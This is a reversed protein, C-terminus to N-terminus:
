EVAKKGLAAKLALMKADSKDKNLLLAEVFKKSAVGPKPSAVISRPIVIEGPSLMAPVTDNAEDDMKDYHGMAASVEGGEAMCEGGEALKNKKAMKMMTAYAVREGEEAGYQEKFGKMNKKAAAHAAIQKAKSVKGGQAYRQILGGQAAKKPVPSKLEAVTKAVGGLQGRARAASEYASIEQSLKLRDAEQKAKQDAEAADFERKRQSEQTEVGLREQGLGATASTGFLQGEATRMNGLVNGLAAEAAQQEQARLISAQGASQQSIDAQQRLLLRQALAPNIGRGAAALRGAADRANQEMSQRLQLEAVSPGGRGEARARLVDALSQQQRGAAQSAAQAQRLYDYYAAKEFESMRGVAAPNILNAEFKQREPGMLGASVLLNAGGETALGAGGKENLYGREEDTLPRGKQWEALKELNTKGSGDGAFFEVISDYWAM